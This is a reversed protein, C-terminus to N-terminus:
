GRRKTDPVHDFDLNISSRMHRVIMRPKQPATTRDSPTMSVDGDDDVIDDFRGEFFQEAAQM